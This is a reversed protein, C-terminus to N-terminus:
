RVMHAGRGPRVRYFDATLGTRAFYNRGVQHIYSNVAWEKVLTVTCGGFGAGTMRSGLVGDIQLAEEVLTDLEFGTVEYDNKLSFHSATMEKGLENLKGAKLYNVANRVRANETIVHRARRFLVPEAVRELFSLDDECLESLDAVKRVSQYAEVASECELRRQNYKSDTLERRKNSNTILIVSDGTMVPVVEYSLTRCNLFVAKDTEGFGVAFQDMIGCNMGVFSNEAHQAMKVLDLTPLSVGFLENVAKATVMEISASSSLGAGNPINGYYLLELGSVPVGITVFENIIGLPYNVWSGNLRAYSEATPLIRREEFNLSAFRIQPVNTKRVALFTGYELAFPLVFGNNYDTHEGILNVRGPSFFLVPINGRDGYIKFFDDNLQSIKM